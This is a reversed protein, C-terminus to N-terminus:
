NTKSQNYFPLNHNLRYDNVEQQTAKRWDSNVIARCGKSKYEIQNVSFHKGEFEYANVCIIYYAENM